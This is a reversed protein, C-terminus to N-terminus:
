EIEALTGGPGFTTVTIKRNDKLFISDCYGMGTGACSEIEPYPQCASPDLDPCPDSFGSSPKFGNALLIKKADPYEMQSKIGLAAFEATIKDSSNEAQSVSTDPSTPQTDNTLPAAATDSQAQADMKNAEADLADAKADAVSIINQADDSKRVSTMEYLLIGLVVCVTIFVVGTVIHSKRKGDM